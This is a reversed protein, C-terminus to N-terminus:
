EEVESSASRVREGEERRRRGPRRAQERAALLAATPRTVRGTQLQTSGNDPYRSAGHLDVVRTEPDFEMVGVQDLFKVKKSPPSGLRSSTRKIRERGATGPLVLETVEVPVVVGTNVQPSEEVVASVTSTSAEEGPPWMPSLHSLAPPMLPIGTLSVRTTAASSMEADTEPYEYGDWERDSVDFLEPALDGDSVSLRKIDRYLYAGQRGAVYVTTPLVREVQYPGSWKPEFKSLIKGRGRRVMVLDGVEVAPAQSIPQQLATTLRSEKFHSDWLKAYQARRASLVSSMPAAPPATSSEVQLFMPLREVASQPEWGHIQAFPSPTNGDARHSNVKCEAISALEVWDVTPDEALISRFARAIERHHVEYFGGHSPSGVPILRHEVAFAFPGCLSQVTKKFAASTFQCGHDSWITQIFGECGLSRLVRVFHQSVTGDLANPMVVFRTFGTRRCCVSLIHPKKRDAEETVLSYLVNDPVDLAQEPRRLPGVLDVGVEMFPRYPLTVVKAEPSLEGQGHARQCGVCGLIAHRVHRHLSPCFLFSRCRAVVASIGLHGLATHIYRAYERVVQWPVIIRITQTFSQATHDYQAVSNRLLLVGQHMEYLHHSKKAQVLAMHRKCYPDQEQCAVLYRRIVEAPGALVLGDATASRTRRWREFAEHRARFTQFSPLGLLDTPPRLPSQRQSLESRVRQVIRVAEERGILQNLRKFQRKVRLAEQKLTAGFVVNQFGGVEAVRSLQDAWTNTSGPIHHLSVSVGVTALDGIREHIVSALRIMATDELSGSQPRNFRNSHALAVQSDACVRVQELDPFCLLRECVARLCGHIGLLEMRNCHWKALFMASTALKGSAFLIEDTGTKRLVFGFGVLSADAEATISKVLSFLPVASVASRSWATHAQELHFNAPVALEEPLVQDWNDFQGVLKRATNCHCLALAEHFDGTTSLYEGAQTYVGRKTVAPSSSPVERRKVTLVPLDGPVNRDLKVYYGLHRTWERENWTWRKSSPSDFGTFKWATSLAEEFSDVMQDPGVVVYDDIVTVTLLADMISIDTQVCQPLVKTLARKTLLEALCRLIQQSTNLMLPGMSVGFVMADSAFDGMHTRLLILQKVGAKDVLKLRISYYASSLDFQRVKMAKTLHGRIQTLAQLVSVQSSSVKPLRANLRRLDTVPRCVTTKEPTVQSPFVTAWIGQLASDAAWWSGRVLFKQISKEYSERHEAKLAKVLKGSNWPAQVCEEEAVIASVEFIYQQEATDCRDTPTVKRLELFFGESVLQPGLQAVAALMAQMCGENTTQPSLGQLVEEAKRLTVDRLIHDLPAAEFRLVSNPVTIAKYNELAELDEDTIVAEASFMTSFEIGEIAALAMRTPIKGTYSALSYLKQVERIRKRISEVKSSIKTM